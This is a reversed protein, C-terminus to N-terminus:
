PPNQNRWVSTRIRGGWGLGLDRASDGSDQPIIKGAPYESPRNYGSSDRVGTDLPSRSPSPDSCKDVRRRRNTAGCFGLQIRRCTEDGASLSSPGRGAPHARRTAGRRLLLPDAREITEVVRKVHLTALGRAAFGGRGGGDDVALSRSLRPFLPRQNIRVATIRAFLDVALLPMNEDVRYARQKMCDNMGGVNPIAVATNENQACQEPFKRKRLLQEGIAAILPLSDLATLALNAVKLGGRAWGTWRRVYDWAPSRQQAGLAWSM